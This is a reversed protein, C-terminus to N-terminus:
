ERLEVYSPPVVIDADLFLVLPLHCENGVFAEEFGSDHKETEGVGWGGELGHHICDENFFQSFIPERDIHVVDQDV